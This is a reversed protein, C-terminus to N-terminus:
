IKLDSQTGSKPYRYIFRGLFLFGILSFTGGVIVLIPVVPLELFIDASFAFLILGAYLFFRVGGILLFGFQVLFIAAIIGLIITAYDSLFGASLRGDFKVYRVAGIGMVLIMIILDVVAFLTFRRLRSKTIDFNFIRPRTVAEKCAILVLFYALLFIGILWIYQNIAITIGIGFLILGICIDWLGDESVLWISRSRYRSDNHMSKALDIFPLLVGIMAFYISLSV